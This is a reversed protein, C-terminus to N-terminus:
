VDVKTKKPGESEDNGESPQSESDDKKKRKRKRKKETGLSDELDKLFDEKELRKKVAANWVDEGELYDKVACDTIVSRGMANGNLRNIGNALEESLLKRDEMNLKIFIKKVTHHGIREVSLAVWRGKLKEFLKKVAPSFPQQKTPGDLIGDILCRSALGDNCMNELESADYKKVIGTLTDGCLRPVFQLLQFVTRAGTADLEAFRKGEEPQQFNILQPVCEEIELPGDVKLAGFGKRMCKLITEQGVRFKASM